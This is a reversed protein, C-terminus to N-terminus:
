DARYALSDKFYPDELFLMGLNLRAKERNYSDENYDSGRFGACGYIYLFDYPDTKVSDDKGTDKKQPACDFPNIAFPMRQLRTWYYKMLSVTKDASDTTKSGDVTFPKFISMDNVTAPNAATADFCRALSVVFDTSTFVRYDGNMRQCIITKFKQQFSMARDVNISEPALIDTTDKGMGQWYRIRFNGPAYASISGNYALRKTKYTAVGGSITFDYVIPTLMGNLAPIVWGMERPTKLIAQYTFDSNNLEVVIQGDTTLGYKYVKKKENRNQKYLPYVTQRDLCLRVDRESMSYLTDLFAFRSGSRISPFSMVCPDASLVLQKSSDIEYQLENHYWPMVVNETNATENQLWYSEPFIWKMATATNMIGVTLPENYDSNKYNRAAMPNAEKLSVLQSFPYGFNEEYDIVDIFSPIRVRVIDPTAALLILSWLSFGTTSHMCPISITLEDQSANSDDQLISRFKPGYKTFFQYLGNVLPHYVKVIYRNNSNNTYSYNLSKPKGDVGIFQNFSYPHALSAKDSICVPLYADYEKDITSFVENNNVAAVFKKPVHLVNMNNDATQLHMRFGRPQLLFDGKSTYKGVSDFLAIIASACGQAYMTKNFPNEFTDVSQVVTTDTHDDKMCGFLMEDIPQTIRQGDKAAKSLQYSMAAATKKYAMFVEAGTSAEMDRMLAITDTPAEISRPLPCFKSGLEDGANADMNQRDIEATNADIIANVASINAVDIDQHDPTIDMKGFTFTKVTGDKGFGVTLNTHCHNGRNLAFSTFSSPDNEDCSPISTAAPDNISQGMVPYIFDQHIEDLSRDFYLEAPTFGTKKQTRAHENRYTGNYGQTASPDEALPKSEDYHIAVQENYLYNIQKLTSDLKKGVRTASRDSKKLQTTASMDDMTGTNGSYSGSKLSLAGVVGGGSTLGKAGKLAETIKKTHVVQAPVTDEKIAVGSGKPASVDAADMTTAVQAETQVRGAPADSKISRLQEDNEQEQRNMFDGNKFGNRGM